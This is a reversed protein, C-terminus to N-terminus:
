QMAEDLDRLYKQKAAEEAAKREFADLGATGLLLRKSEYRRKADDMREELTKPPAPRTAAPKPKKDEEKKGANVFRRTYWAVVASFLVLLWAGLVVYAVVV